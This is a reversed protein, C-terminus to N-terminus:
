VSDWDRKRRKGTPKHEAKRNRGNPWKMAVDDYFLEIRVTHRSRDNGCPEGHIVPGNDIFHQIWDKLVQLRTNWDEQRKPDVSVCMKEASFRFCSPIRKGTIACDYADPNMRIIAIMSGIPAHSTFLEERGREDICDYTNHSHEDVEVIIVTQNDITMKADPRRRVGLSFGSDFKWTRDPFENVLFERVALEKAHLWKRGEIAREHTPFTAIFCRVCRKGYRKDPNFNRGGNLCGSEGKGGICPRQQKGEHKQLIHQRKEAESVFMRQCDEFDCKIMKVGGHIRVVHDDLNYKQAFAKGCKCGLSTTEQCVFRNGEKHKSVHNSLSGSSAFLMGCEKGDRPGIYNCRFESSRRHVNDIHDPVHHSRSFSRGCITLNVSCTEGVVSVSACVWNCPYPKVKLHVADFHYRLLATNGFAKGNRKCGPWKCIKEGPLPKSQTTVVEDMNEITGHKPSKESSADMANM